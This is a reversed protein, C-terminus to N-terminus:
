ACLRFGEDSHKRPELRPLLVESGNQQYTIGDSEFLSVEYIFYSLSRVFTHSDRMLLSFKAVLRRQMYERMEIVKSIFWHIEYKDTSEVSCVDDFINDLEVSLYQEAWHGCGKLM